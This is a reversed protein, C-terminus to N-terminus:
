KIKDLVEDLERYLHDFSGNNMFRYDALRMCETLNQKNPDTNTMERNENDVFTEFSVKDTESAREVIRSYRLKQDADVAFLNFSGKAHLANVEGVTRISEIICNAGSEKAERYLEEAIFSPTNQARLENATAVLTDRNVEGGKAKIIKTLYGRVSFHTFGHHRTLYDVITGKGAGLTGTIGIIKV